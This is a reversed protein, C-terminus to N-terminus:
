ASTTIQSGRDEDLRVLISSDIEEQLAEVHSIVGVIRNERRLDKLTDFVDRLSEGDLSGFGEDLFFFAPQDGSGHDISDVLALALCLAAQFTQGGSLTKVSRRRGGNLADIVTFERDGTMALELQNRTLRRFRDNAASVLQQLYVHAVYGVFGRARFLDALVSLNRVRVDLDSERVRLDDRRRVQAEATERRATLSGLTEDVRARESELASIRGDLHSQEDELERRRAISSAAADSSADSSPVSSLDFSPAIDEGAARLEARIAATREVLRRHRERIEEERAEYEPLRPLDGILEALEDDDRDTVARLETEAATREAAVREVAARREEEQQDRREAAREAARLAEDAAVHDAEARDMATRVRTALARRDDPSGDRVRDYAARAEEDLAGSQTTVTRRLDELRVDREERRAATSAVATDAESKRRLLDDLTARRADIRAYRDWADEVEAAATDPDPSLVERHDSTAVAPRAAEEEAADRLTGEARILSAIRGELARSSTKVPFM